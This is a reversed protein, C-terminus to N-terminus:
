CHALDATRGARLDDLAAVAGGLTSVKVLRLGDPRTSKAQACNGAPSLFVTAGSRKAGIM